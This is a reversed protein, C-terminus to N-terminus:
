TPRRLEVYKGPTHDVVIRMKLRKQRVLDAIESAQESYQAVIVSAKKERAEELIVTLKREERGYFAGDDWEEDYARIGIVKIENASGTLKSVARRVAKEESEEVSGCRGDAIVAVVVEKM